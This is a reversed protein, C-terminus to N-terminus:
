SSHPQLYPPVSWIPVVSNEQSSNVVEDLKPADILNLIPLTVCTPRLRSSLQKFKHQPPTFNLTLPQSKCSDILQRLCLQRERRTIESTELINSIEQTSKGLDKCLSITQSRWMLYDFTTSPSSKDSNEVVNTM